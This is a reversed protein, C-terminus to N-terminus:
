ETDTCATEDDQFPTGLESKSETEAIYVWSGEETRSESIMVDSAKWVANGLSMQIHRPWLQADLPAPLSPHRTCLENDLQRHPFFHPTRVIFGYSRHLVEVLIAHQPFRGATGPFSFNLTCSDDDDRTVEFHHCGFM